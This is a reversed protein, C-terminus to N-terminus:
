SITLSGDRELTLLATSTGHILGYCKIVRSELDMQKNHLAVLLNSLGLAMQNRIQVTRERVVVPGLAAADLFISSAKITELFRTLILKCHVPCLSQSL